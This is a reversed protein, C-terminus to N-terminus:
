SSGTAAEPGRPLRFWFTSGRGLVSDVGIEGGHAEVIRKALALGLGTGGITQTDSSDVRHFMDFVAAREAAPIGLGSDAVSVMVHETGSELALRVEGGGPSYKIANSLLNGVVQALQDRDALVAIPPAPPEFRVAHRESQLAYLQAQEGLLDRLDFSALRPTAGGLELRQIDLLDNILVRLREGESRVTRLYRARTEADDDGGLLLDTFGLISVLPTRLEHSVTAVLDSKLREAQRETTVERLVTLRGLRAGDADRVPVSFRAFARGSDTLEFEDRLEADPDAALRAGAELYAGPDALRGAVIAPTFEPVTEYPREFIEEIVQRARANALLVSGGPDLLFIADDVAQVVADNTRALRALADGALANGLGLAAAEVLMEDLAEGERPRALVAVGLERGGLELPVRLGDPSSAQGRRALLTPEQGPHVAAYVAGDRTGLADTFVELIVEAAEAGGSAYALRSAFVRVTEERRKEDALLWAAHEIQDRHTRLEENASLLEAEHEELDSAQRALEANQEELTERNEQLSDAMANFDQALVGVEAAGREPVRADRRGAGLSRAGAAVAVVPGIVTRHLLVGALVLLVVVALALVLGLRIAHTGAASADAQLRRERDAEAAGLRTFLSRMEDVRRKGEESAITRRAAPLGREAQQVLPESYDELYSRARERLQAVLAAEAPARAVRQELRTLSPQLLRRGARWPDLFAEDHTIIFGRSGTEIDIVLKETRHGLGITGASRQAEDSADRLKGIAGILLAFATAVIALLLVGGAALRATLGPLREARV